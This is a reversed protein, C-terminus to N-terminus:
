TTDMRSKCEDQHPLSFQNSQKTQRGPAEHNNNPEVYRHWSKDATQSQPILQTYLNSNKNSKSNHMDQNFKIILIQKLDKTYTLREKRVPFM